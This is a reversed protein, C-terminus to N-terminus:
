MPLSCIPSRRIRVRGSVGAGGLGSTRAAGLEHGGGCRACFPLMMIAGLVFTLTNLTLGDFHNAVEKMLIMYIAFVLTSALMILTVPGSTGSGQGAKDATLIGVGAFAILMGAFKWGDASGAPDGRRHGAGHGAGPGRDAGYAGGHDAGNRRHVYAPEPCERQGGHTMMWWDRRSLQLRRLRGSAFFLMVFIIAACWCAYNRWRWPGFGECAEKGAIINSAWCVMVLLMLLHM